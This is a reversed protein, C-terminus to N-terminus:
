IMSLELFSIIELIDESAWFLIPLIGKMIRDAHPSRECFQIIQKRALNKLHEICNQVSDEVKASISIGAVKEATREGDCLELIKTEGPSIPEEM